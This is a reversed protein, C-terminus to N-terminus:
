ENVEIPESTWASTKRYVEGYNARLLEKLDSYYTELHSYGLNHAEFEKTVV